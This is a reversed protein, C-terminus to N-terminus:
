TRRASSRTRYARRAPVAVMVQTGKNATSLCKFVAGITVAREKMGPLGWHGSRSNTQQALLDFGCGNDAVVFDVSKPRCSLSVTIESAKSHRFANGIAERGIYYLEHLVLPIIDETRGDVNLAFRVRQEHDLDAAVAKFADALDTHTLDDARLRTVRDRGEVLIRDATALAREMSARTRSGEPLEQAAVHFHLTLGQVGQLLTDHLDRAIRVREDARVEARERIAAAVRKVRWRLGLWFLGILVTACLLLFWRTQYFAPLITFQVTAGQENWVGSNNCAMVRFSYNGPPLNTYTVERLSIRPSWDKDYGQLQYRFRVKRPAAFSLATYAIHIAATKAPLSARETNGIERGDATIGEIHVAPALANQNLHRPDLVGLGTKMAFLIRGDKTMASLPMFWGGGPTNEVGETNDLYNSITVAHSPETVWSLLDSEPFGVLGCETLLWVKHDEDRRMWHVADCPLGKERGLVSIRGDMLHALGQKTAVWVGGDKDVQLVRIPGYGLGKAQGYRELIKDDKLFFLEGQHTTFWIGGRKPDFVVSLPYDGFKEANFSKILHGDERLHLLGSDRSAAWLTGEYDEAVAFLGKDEELWVRDSGDSIM